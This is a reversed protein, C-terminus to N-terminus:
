EESLRRIGEAQCFRDATAITMGLPADIARDLLVQNKRYLQCTVTGQQTAVQVPETEFASLDTCGALVACAALATLSQHYTMWQRAMETRWRHNDGIVRAADRRFKGHGTRLGVEASRLDHGLEGRYFADDLWNHRAWANPQSSLVNM